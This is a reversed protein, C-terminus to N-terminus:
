EAAAPEGQAVELRLTLVNCWGEREYNVDQALDRILYWGFGGEPLDPFEVNTSPLKSGPVLGEPMANGEDVIRVHLGDASHRCEVYVPCPPPSDAYAHEVINNLAEALVLEVTGAEDTDLDLPELGELLKTLASRVAFQSVQFSMEFGRPTEPAM